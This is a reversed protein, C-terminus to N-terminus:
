TFRQSSERRWSTRRPRGPTILWIGDQRPKDPIGLSQATANPVAITFQTHATDRSVGFRVGAAAAVPAFSTADAMVIYLVATGSIERNKPIMMRM